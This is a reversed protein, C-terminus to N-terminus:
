GLLAPLALLLLGGQYIIMSETGALKFPGPGAENTVAGSAIMLGNGDCWEAWTPEGTTLVLDNAGSPQLSIRGDAIITGCPKSLGRMALLTGGPSTYFKISSSGVGADAQAVTAASRAARHATTVTISM